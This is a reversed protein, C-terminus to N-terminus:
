LRLLLRLLLVIMVRLLHRPRRLRVWVGLAGHVRRQALGHNPRRNRKRGGTHGGGDGSAATTGSARAPRNAHRWRPSDHRPLKPIHAWRSDVSRALRAGRRRRGQGERCLHSTRWRCRRDLGTTARWRAPDPGGQAGGHARWSAAVAVWARWPDGQALAIGPSKANAHACRRDGLPACPPRRACRRAVPLVHRRRRNAGRRARACQLLLRLAVVRLVQLPGDRGAPM